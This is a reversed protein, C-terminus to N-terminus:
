TYHLGSFCYEMTMRQYCASLDLVWRHPSATKASWLPSKGFREGRREEGGRRKGGTKKERKPKRDPTCLSLLQGIGEPIRVQQKFSTNFKLTIFVKTWKPLVYTNEDTPPCNSDCKTLVARFLVLELCWSPHKAWRNQCVVMYDIAGHLTKPNIGKRTFGHINPSSDKAYGKALHPTDSPLKTRSGPLGHHLCPVSSYPILYLKKDEYRQSLNSLGSVWPSYHM